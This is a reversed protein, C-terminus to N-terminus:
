GHYIRREITNREREEIEAQLLVELYGTHSKKERVAQEAVRSFQAAIVPMRLAKCQAKITAEELQVGPSNMTYRGHHATSRIGGDGALSARLTGTCRGRRGRLRVASTRGPAAPAGGGRCRFLRGGAGSGGSGTAQRPWIAPGTEASGGDAAHREAERATGDAGALDPRLQGAVAGGAAASRSGHLGGARGTKRWLVDLYHELELIQQQRGYCRAHRAVCNGEHWLEVMSAYAKAHVQTGAALPASYSNTRVKVCGLGNVTPFSTQALDVGESALPLLHEREVRQAAGVNQSRGSLTRQEDQRCAAALQRNLDALDAAQPVPVWHNRRFYGAESEIGGKEHGEGPTCFEAAFRWHSRFAIFRATEERRVGRLIKKVASALNDYRLRHFVGGFWGFALEHAELFAQQTANSFACHFAAGSAMSRLSFVQLQTREGALDVYAEYWDVQAEVGWDYSQAVCVERGVLGLALKRDHVYERVTREAAACDAREERLRVWIRHATHRQKRPAQRDSQLIEDIFPIAAQLKLRPRETKKRPKPLASTVAQRVMRRHVGAKRAVGVITGVGFEYERRIEEFLEM